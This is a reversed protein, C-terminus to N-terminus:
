TSVAVGWKQFNTLGMESDDVNTEKIWEVDDFEVSYDITATLRLTSDGEADTIRVYGSHRVKGNDQRILILTTKIKKDDYEYAM